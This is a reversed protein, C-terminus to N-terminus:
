ALQTRAQAVLRGYIAAARDGLERDFNAALPRDTLKLPEGVESPGSVDALEALRRWTQAQTCLDEYCVFLAAEPKSRELWSYTECWLHLWYDLTNPAYRAPVAGEFQFPRHDLGFEHHGLWTMYSLVFEHKAQLELFRLHQRLLSQAHQVPNRFPILLLANPFARHITGLRLINNNNKSLYRDIRPDNASLIANVYRVYKEVLEAGPAHPKLRDSELYEDGAFIRWFVEDLSEPSDADVLLNDGHARESRELDRRSIRSLRRWLNPALVFPMDRYTLSRYQGTAHFRRMLVTTGARALGSVFVHRQSVVESPDGRVTMQDLDVSMEAIPRYHLALRHLLRELFSYDSDVL